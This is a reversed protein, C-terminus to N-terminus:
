RARVWPLTHQRLADGWLSHKESAPPLKGREKALQLDSQFAAAAAATFFHLAKKDVTLASCLCLACVFCGHGGRVFFVYTYYLITYYLITYYLITYYLM